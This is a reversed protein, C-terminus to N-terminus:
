FARIPRIPLQWGVKLASSQRGGGFTQYVISADEWNGETSSWYYASMFGGLDTGANATSKLTGTNDCQVTLEGTEQGRAYKCLENLENASPIFWQGTTLSGAGGYALVAAQAASTAGDVKMLRTNNFGQGIQWNLRETAYGPRVYNSSPGQTSVTTTDQGTWPFQLNSWGYTLDDAISGSRWTSPAAELYSCLTNCTSGVSTFNGSAVYFVIGGGPGRDGVYCVGGDACSTASVDPATVTLSFTRTASGTLNIATITYNTATAITTPTGTLAGTSTNFRMGSPTASISYSSIAGGTSNSTFGTAKANVRKSETSSSLTFAPLPLQDESVFPSFSSTIGCVQTSTRTTTIDVWAGGVYHWLKASPSADLCVTANGTIGPISIDVIKTTRSVTFPTSGAGVPNDITRISASLPTGQSAFSMNPNGLANSSVSVSTVGVPIAASASESSAFSVQATSVARAIPAPPVYANTTVSQSPVSVSSTGDVSTASVTFTYTTLAQLGNIVLKLDSWSYIKQIDGRSSTITYYAVPADPNTSSDQSLTISASQDSYALVNAIVPVTPLLPSRSYLSEVQHKACNDRILRYDSVWSNKNSCVIIQKSGVGAVLATDSQVLRWKATGQTPLCTGTKSVREKGSQLNVCTVLSTTPEASVASYTPLLHVAVLTLASLVVTFRKFDKVESVGNRSFQLAVSFKSTGELKFNM